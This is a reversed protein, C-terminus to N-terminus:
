SAKLFNTLAAASLELLLRWKAGFSSPKHNSSFDRPSQCNLNTKTEDDVFSANNHFM